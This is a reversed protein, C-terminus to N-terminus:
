TYKWLEKLKCYLVRNQRKGFDSVGKSGCFVFIRGM